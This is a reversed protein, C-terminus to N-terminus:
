TKVEVGGMLVFGRLRLRHRADQLGTTQDGVGGMIAITENSVNWDPPVRIELGGMIIFVDIVAESGGTGAGRLDLEVGGMVATIDARRFVPSTVRRQVGSWVAVASTQQDGIIVPSRQRGIARVVIALGVVVLWLPWIRWMQIRWGAFTSAAIVGAIAVLLLGTLRAGIDGARAMVALGLAALAAPWFYRLAARADVWGFNAATLLLGAVAICGGLVAQPTVRLPTDDRM